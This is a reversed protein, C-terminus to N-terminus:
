NPGYPSYFTPVVANTVARNLIVISYRTITWAALVIVLGIIGNKLLGVAKKIKEENGASTMYMFGAVITLGLFIIGLFELVIRIINAITIRIDTPTNDGYAMTGVEGLGIQSDLLSQDALVPQFGFIFVLSLFLLFIGALLQKKIISM